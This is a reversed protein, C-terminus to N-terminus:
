DYAKYAKKYFHELLQVAPEPWFKRFMALEEEMRRNDGIWKKTTAGGHVRYYILPREVCIFRGKKGALKWLTDWDLVYRFPSDFLPSKLQEKNYSCASCCIPNGFILAAKKIWSIGNWRPNRLPMRLITKIWEVSGKHKKMMREKVTVYDSTFVTMDPYKEAMELLTKAYDRAYMDDQHAITVFRSDAKEYAFNWDDQIDSKGDRVFVPIEYKEALMEIYPSPTSTCLIIDTEATQAKLSRICNELFPSDGYACIAFTHGTM